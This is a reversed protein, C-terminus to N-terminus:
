NIEIIKDGDSHLTSFMLAMYKQGEQSELIEEGHQHLAIVMLPM